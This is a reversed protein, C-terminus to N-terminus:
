QSQVVTGTGSKWLPRIRRRVLENQLLRIEKKASGLMNSNEEARRVLYPLVEHVPGYPVYKYAMYGSMGLSFSVHDCMGLLQGFYIGGGRIPIGLEQMRQVVHKVTTENHSAIMLDCTEINDMVIDVCKHYNAHTEEITNHIPSSYGRDRARAREQIMYAGRVCKAAFFFGDRRARELDIKIRDYSDKLYCQYTNYIVPRERNYTRQLQLVFHDIAPQFYTQEADVMLRVGLDAAKDALLKLRKKLNRVQQMEEESLTKLGQTKFKPNLGGLLKPDLFNIWEVFDVDGSKNADMKDFLKRTKVTGLNINMARLGRDFQEYNILETMKVIDQESECFNQFVKKTHNLVTSLHELLEPKGLATLKIAAFSDPRNASAEICSLCIELNADCSAEDTYEYTRASVVGEKRETPTEPVDAEAAYDLVAGLGANELKKIVPKITESDEGACFHAFFTKKMILNTIRQGIIKDGLKLLRNANKVFFEIGCLKFVIISRLIEYDSKTAFSASVDDFDLPRKAVVNEGRKFGPKIPPAESASTSYKYRLLYNNKLLVHRVPQRAFGLIM